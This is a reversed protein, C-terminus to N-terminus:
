DASDRWRRPCNGSGTVPPARQLPHRPYRTLLNTILILGLITIVEAAQRANAHGSEVADACDWSLSRTAPATSVISLAHVASTVLKQPLTVRPSPRTSSHM